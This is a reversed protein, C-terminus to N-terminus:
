YDQCVVGSTVPHADEPGGRAAIGLTRSRSPRPTGSVRRLRRPRSPLAVGFTSSQTTQNQFSPAHSLRTSRLTQSRSTAPEFGAAGIGTKRGDIHVVCVDEVARMQIAEVHAFGCVGPLSKLMVPRSVLAMGASGGIPNEDEAFWGSRSGFRQFNFLFDLLGFAAFGDHPPDSARVVLDLGGNPRREVPLRSVGM